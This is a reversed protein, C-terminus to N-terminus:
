GIAAWASTFGIVRFCAEGRGHFATARLQSVGMVSLLM